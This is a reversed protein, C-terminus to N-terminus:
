SAKYVLMSSQFVTEGNWLLIDNLLLAKRLSSVNKFHAGPDSQTGDLSNSHFSQCDAFGFYIIVSSCRICLNHRGPTQSSQLSCLPFPSTTFLAVDDNLFLHYNTDECYLKWELLPILVNSRLIHGQISQSGVVDATLLNRHLHIPEPGCPNGLPDNINFHTRHLDKVERWLCDSSSFSFLM